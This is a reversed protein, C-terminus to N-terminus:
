KLEKLKPVVTDKLFTDKDSDEDLFFFPEAEIVHQPQTDVVEPNDDVIITNEKTYGPLQYVDSLMELNKSGGKVKESLDCHYSFLIYDLKRKPHNKLIMNEIIFLAYDKSAATWVSVNFNAFLYDLFKQLGPREFIIYYGEMNGYDFKKMKDKYKSIDYEDTAEGSIITQDLDLLVNKVGSPSSSGDSSDNSSSDHKELEQKTVM